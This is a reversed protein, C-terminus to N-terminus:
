RPPLHHALLIVLFALLAPGHYTLYDIRMLVLTGLHFLIASVMYLLELEPVLLVIPFTLEFALTLFAIVSCLKDHKAVRCAYPIDYKLHQLLLIGQLQTATAWSFGSHRVKLYGASVYIQIILIKLIFIPWTSTLASLPDSSGPALAMIFLFQPILNSKRVVYALSRIQGFYLFYFFVCALLAVRPVVGAIALGLGALFGFGVCNFTLPSLEIIRWRGLLSAPVDDMKKMLRFYTLQDRHRFIFVLFLTSCYILIFLRSYNM